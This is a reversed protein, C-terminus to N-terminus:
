LIIRKSFKNLYTPLLYNFYLILIIVNFVLLTFLLLSSFYFFASSSLFLYSSALKLFFIPFPPLGILIFMLITQQSSSSLILLLLVFSYFLFLAIFLYFDVKVTLLLWGSNFLSSNVLLSTLTLSSSALIGSSLGTGIFSFLLLIYSFYSDLFFYFSFLYLPPLKQFTLAMYFCVKPLNYLSFFYWFNFPFMGLKMLLFLSFLFIAFSSSFHSCSAWSFLLSMSSVSQILFYVIASTYSGRNISSYLICIFIFGRIEIWTWFSLFEWTSLTFYLTVPYVLFLLFQPISFILM